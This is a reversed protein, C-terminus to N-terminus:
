EITSKNRGSTKSEYMLGDVRHILEKMNEGGKYLAAGISVTVNFSNDAYAIISKECLVRIRETVMKLLDM